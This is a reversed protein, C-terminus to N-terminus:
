QLEGMDPGLIPYSTLRRADEMDVAFGIHVLNADHDKQEKGGEYFTRGNPIPSRREYVPHM